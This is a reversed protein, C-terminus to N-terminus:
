IVFGVYDFCYKGLKDEKIERFLIKIGEGFVVNGVVYIYVYGGSDQIVVVWYNFIIFGFFDVKDM